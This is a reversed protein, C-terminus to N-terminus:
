LMAFFKLCKSIKLDKNRQPESEVLCATAIGAWPMGSQYDALLWHARSWRHHAMAMCSNTQGNVLRDKSLKQNAWQM